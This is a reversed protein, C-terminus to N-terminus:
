KILDTGLYKQLVRPVTLSGDKNQYNELIAILTRPLALGSGNLTHVLELSADKESRFKLSMRRAQFDEFNSCSSVELFDNLGPAWVELDYCKTAGFSLDSSCLEVVRYPLELEKLVKEANERLGELHDYSTDPHVVRVMEVKDFQHLRTIGKSNKGYAGAERRFCPTYAVFTKPLDKEELIEKAYINTVPVEATPILYLSGDDIGYMDESMHPLQGTGTATATNVLVPPLVEEYGHKNIHLDLMFNILARILRAGWSRYLVFGSGTLKAGRVLDFMDFRAGIEEHSKFLDLDSKESSPYWDKVFVNEKESMGFPVTPHLRNPIKYALQKVKLDIEKAKQDMSKIKQALDKMESMLSDVNNKLSKDKGIQSSVLNKKSKLTEVSLLLDRRERDLSLFSQLDFDSKRADLIKQFEDPNARLWKLNVM